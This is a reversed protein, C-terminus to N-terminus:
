NEKVMTNKTIDGLMGMAMGTKDFSFNNIAAPM